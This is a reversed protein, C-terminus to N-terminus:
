WVGHCCEMRLRLALLPWYHIHDRFARFVIDSKPDVPWCAKYSEIYTRMSRITSAVFSMCAKGKRAAFVAPFHNFTLRFRRDPPPNPLGPATCSSKHPWPMRGRPMLLM